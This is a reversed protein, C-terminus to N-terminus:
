APPGRQGYGLALLPVRPAAVPLAVLVRPEVPAVRLRPAALRKVFAVAAALLGRASIYAAVAFPVQVALGVLFAADLPGIHALTGTGAAREVLEQLVFGVPPAAAFVWLPLFARRLRGSREFASVALAIVGIAVCIAACGRLHAGFASATTAHDHRSHGGPSALSYAVLHASLGGVATFALAVGWAARRRSMAGTM